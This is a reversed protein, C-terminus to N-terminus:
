NFRNMAATLNEKFALNIAGIMKEKIAAIKELESKNFKQLVFKETSTLRKLFCAFFTKGIPHIGARFRIFNKNGLNEIISKIGKHGGPGANQSIRITGLPLDLDDHIIWIDAPAIKYFDALLKVAQGSLNMFTQPKVLIIKESNIQGESIESKFKEEQRWSSFGGSQNKLLELIEFGLNHRTNTYKQGPNGLGIILKM